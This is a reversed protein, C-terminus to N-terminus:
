ERAITISSAHPSRATVARLMAAKSERGFRRQVRRAIPKGLRVMWYRPQSFAERDYWVTDDGQWEVCFREEGREVHGPLTGYAFGFRRPEEIVYVIRAACFRARRVTRM